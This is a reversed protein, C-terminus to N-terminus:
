QRGGGTLKAAVKEAISDLFSEFTVADAYKPQTREDVAVLHEDLLVIDEQNSQTLYKLQELEQVQREVNRQTDTLQHEISVVKRALHALLEHIDPSAKTKDAPEIVVYEKEAVAGNRNGPTGVSDSEIGYPHLRDVKLVSGNAYKGYTIWAHKILVKDGVEAKRNVEVYNVGDIIHKEIM